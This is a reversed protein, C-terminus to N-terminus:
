SFECPALIAVASGRIHAPAILVRQRWHSRCALPRVHPVSRVVSPRSGQLTTRYDPSAGRCPGSQGHIMANQGNTARSARYGGRSTTSRRGSSTNTDPRQRGKGLGTYGARGPTRTKTNTRNRDFNNDWHQRKGRPIAPQRVLIIPAGTAPRSRAARAPREGDRLLERM